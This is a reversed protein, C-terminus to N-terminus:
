HWNFVYGDWSHEVGRGLTFRWTVYTAIVLFIIATLLYFKDNLKRRTFVLTLIGQVLTTATIYILVLLDGLGHGFTIKGALTLLIVLVLYTLVVYNFTKGYKFTTTM